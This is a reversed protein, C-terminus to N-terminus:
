ATPILKCIKSLKSNNTQNTVDETQLQQVIENPSLGIHKKFTRLMTSNSGFGAAEGLSEITHSLHKNQILFDIVKVMRIFNKYGNFGFDQYYRFLFKLHHVPIKTNISLNELAFEDSNFESKTCAYEQITEMILTLDTNESFQNQDITPNKWGAIELTDPFSKPTSKKINKWNPLGILLQPKMWVYVVMMLLYMNKVILHQTNTIIPRDYWFASFVERSLLLYFLTFPIMQIMVWIGIEKGHNGLFTGQSIGKIFLRYILFLYPLAIMTWLLYLYKAHILLKLKQVSQDYIFASQITTPEQKYIIFSFFAILFVIIGPIFHWYHKNQWKLEDTILARQYLFVSAPVVFQFGVFLYFPFVSFDVIQINIIGQSFNRISLAFLIISLLKSLYPNEKGAFFLYIAASLGLTAIFLNIWNLSEHM